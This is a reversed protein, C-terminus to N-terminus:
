QVRAPLPVFAPTHKGQIIELATLVEGAIAKSPEWQWGEPTPRGIGAEGSAGVYYAQALGVYLVRVEAPRGDAMQRVEYSVNIENNAKNLENLFGLVNQFREPASVTTSAPDEPMRQLLMQVRARTPDPLSRAIRRVEGEMVSVLAHLRANAAEVREHEALLEARKGEVEAAGSSAQAIKEKLAAVEQRILELRGLLIEKGQQWEKRERSIIQQTEIWKGLTLRAEELSPTAQEGDGGRAQGAPGAAVCVLSAVATLALTALM